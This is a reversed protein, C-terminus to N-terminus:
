LLLGVITRNNGRGILPTWRGSPIATTLSMKPCTDAEVTEANRDRFFQQICVSGHLTNRDPFLREAANHFAYVNCTFLPWGFENGM